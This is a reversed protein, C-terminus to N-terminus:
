ISQSVSDSLFLIPFVHRNFVFKHDFFEFISRSIVCFFLFYIESFSNIRISNRRYLVFWLALPVFPMQGNNEAGIEYFVKSICLDICIRPALLLQQAGEFVYPCAFGMM